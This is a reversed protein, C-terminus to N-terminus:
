VYSAVNMTDLSLVNRYEALYEEATRKVDYKELVHQRAEGIMQALSDDVRLDHINAIQRACDEISEPQFLFGLRGKEIIERPGELDSVLVPVGAAMAEVVALGFGEYRSAQVLLDYQCLEEYIQSRPLTGRFTVVKNLGLERVMGELFGRSDGDGILDLSFDMTPYQDRIKAVAQILLDQGKHNHALRAVQVIRFIGQNTRKERRISNVPIGNQVVKPRAWHTRGQVEEAVAESIAFVKDFHPLTKRIPARTTHITLVMKSRRFPFIKKLDCGHLHVIDPQIRNM